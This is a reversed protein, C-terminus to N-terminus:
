WHETKNRLKYKMYMNFFPSFQCTNYAFFDGTAPGVLDAEFDTHRCGKRKTKKKQWGTFYTICIHVCNNSGSWIEWVCLIAGAALLPWM